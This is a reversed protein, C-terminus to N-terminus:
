YPAAPDSDVVVDPPAALKNLEDVAAVIGRYFHTDRESATRAILATVADSRMAALKAAVVVWVEAHPDIM